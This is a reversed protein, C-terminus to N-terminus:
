FFHKSFVYQKAYMKNLGASSLSYYYYIYGVHALNGSVESGEEGKEDGGLQPALLEPDADKDLSTRLFEFPKKDPKHFATFFFFWSQYRL